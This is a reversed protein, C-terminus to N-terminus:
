SLAKRIYLFREAISACQPTCHLHRLRGGCACSHAFCMRQEYFFLHVESHSNKSLITKVMQITSDIQAKEEPTKGEKIIDLILTIEDPTFHIGQKNASTILAMMIPM